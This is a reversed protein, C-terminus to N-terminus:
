LNGKAWPGWIAFTIGPAQMNVFMVHGKADFCAGAFENDRYDGPEVTKGAAALDSPSLQVNNKCFVYSEGQPTLGLTREGFGFADNVGGGDECLVVGGRPSV